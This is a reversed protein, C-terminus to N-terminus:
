GYLPVFMACNADVGKRSVVTVGTSTGGGLVGLDHPESGSLPRGSHAAGVKIWGPGDAPNKAFRAWAAQIFQSLAVEQPPSPKSGTATPLKGHTGFVLDIESAHFVGANPFTQLNPFSANFFYRWSPYGAVYAGHAQLFAPCTFQVDTMIASMIDYNSHLGQTHLAYASRVKETLNAPFNAKLYTELDSKGYQFVRGEQANSGVLIPVSAIKGEHRKLYPRSVLTFNDTTPSFSLAKSEIIAKIKTASIARLCALSGDGTCNAEALLTAWSSGTAPV